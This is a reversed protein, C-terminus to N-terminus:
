KKLTLQVTVKVVEEMQLAAAISYALLPHGALPLINKNPLGKSGGRAPIIALIKKFNM